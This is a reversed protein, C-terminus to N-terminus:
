HIPAPFGPSAGKSHWPDWEVTATLAQSSFNSFSAQEEPYLTQDGMLGTAKMPLPCNCHSTAGLIMVYFGHNGKLLRKMARDQIHTSKFGHWDWSSCSSLGLITRITTSSRPIPSRPQKPLSVILYPKSSLRVIEDTTQARFTSLTKHSWWM